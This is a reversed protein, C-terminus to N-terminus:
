AGAIQSATRKSVGHAPLGVIVKRDQRACLGCDKCNTNMYTAPCTAITRGQPTKTERKADIPLVVVVPAIDLAALTDAQAVTDASLNVTFGAKNANKVAGANTKTMPKHTYTFGRKGHNAIVLASLEATNIRNGTGPLDGAQNHRWLQGSPLDAIAGCFTQWDTGREGKDVKAWHMALPGGKAYCGKTKLGCNDPCTDASTTSVPIPGVKANRSKLALHTNMPLKRNTTAFDV